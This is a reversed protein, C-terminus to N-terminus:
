WGTTDNPLHGFVDSLSCNMATEGYDPVADAHVYEGGGPCVTAHIMEHEACLEEVDIPDGVDLNYLNQEGRVIQQVHRINLLCGTRDSARKWASVGIFLVTVLALLVLIIVTLELLTM